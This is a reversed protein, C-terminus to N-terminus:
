GSAPASPIGGAALGKALIKGHLGYCDKSRNAGEHIDDGIKVLQNLGPQVITASVLGLKPLPETPSMANLAHNDWGLHSTQHLTAV